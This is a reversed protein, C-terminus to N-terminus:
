HIIPEINRDGHVGRANMEARCRKWNASHCTPAFAM